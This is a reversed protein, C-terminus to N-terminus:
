GSPIAAPRTMYTQCQLGTLWKDVYQVPAWHLHRPSAPARILLKWRTWNLRIHYNLCHACTFTVSSTNMSRWYSWLMIMDTSGSVHCMQGLSYRSHIVYQFDNTLNQPLTSPSNNPTGHRELCICLKIIKFIDWIPEHETKCLQCFLGYLGRLLLM